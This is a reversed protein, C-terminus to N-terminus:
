LRRLRPQRELADAAVVDRSELRRAEGGIADGWVVLDNRRAELRVDTREWDHLGLHRSRHAVLVCVRSGCARDLGTKGVRGIECSHANSGRATFTISMLM